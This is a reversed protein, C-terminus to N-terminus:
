FDCCYVTKTLDWWPRRHEEEARFLKKSRSTDRAETQAMSEQPSADWPSSNSATSAFEELEETQSCQEALFPLDLM